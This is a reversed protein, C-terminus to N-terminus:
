AVPQMKWWVSPAAPVDSYMLSPVDVDESKLAIVADPPHVVGGGASPLSPTSGAPDAVLAAGQISMETGLANLIAPSLSAATEVDFSDNELPLSSRLAVSNPLIANLANVTGAGFRGDVSILNSTASLGDQANFKAMVANLSRQIDKWLQLTAANMPKAVGAVVSCGTAPVDQSCYFPVASSAAGVDLELAGM